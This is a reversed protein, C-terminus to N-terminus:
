IVPDTSIRVIRRKRVAIEFGDRDYQRTAFQIWDRSKSQWFVIQRKDRCWIRTTDREYRKAVMFCGYKESLVKVMVWYLRSYDRIISTPAIFVKSPGRTGYTGGEYFTAQTLGRMIQLSAAAKNAPLGHVIRYLNDPPSPVRQELPWGTVRAGTRGGRPPQSVDLIQDWEYESKLDELEVEEPTTCATCLLPLCLVLMVSRLASPRQRRLSETGIKVLSRLQTEM